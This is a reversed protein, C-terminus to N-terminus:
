ENSEGNLFRKWCQECSNDKETTNCLGIFDKTYDEIYEFSDPCRIFDYKDECSTSYDSMWGNFLCESSIEDRLKKEKNTM